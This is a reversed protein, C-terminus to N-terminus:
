RRGKAVKLLDVPKKSKKYKKFYFWVLLIIVLLILIVAIIRGTNSTQIDSCTGTCCWGDTGSILNVDCVKTQTECVVGGLEACTKASSTEVDSSNEVFKASVFLSFSKNDITVYLYGDIEQEEESFFSLEISKNSNGEITDIKDESLVAYYALEDSLSLSIDEMETDNLNYLYVLEKYAFNTPIYLVLDSTQFNLEGDESLESTTNGTGSVSAPIKYTTNEFSLLVNYLITETESVFFNIKKNEGATLSITSDKNGISSVYVSEPFESTSVDVNILHDRLNQITLSFNNSAEIFGPNVSFDSTENSLSFNKVVNSDDTIGGTSYKIDEISLSYNGAPKGVLFAYLYYDYGIKTIQYELSVRVHERYFFINSRSIPTIFNGSIKAILTEGQSYEENMEVEVAFVGSILLLSIFFLVSIKNM